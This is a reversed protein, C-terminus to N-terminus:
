QKEYAGFDPIERIRPNGDLDVVLNTTLGKDIAPSSSKLHFNYKGQEGGTEEFEPDIDNYTNETDINPSVENERWLGYTFIVSYANSGEKLAVVENNVMAGDGWCITNTFRASLAATQVVNNNSIADTIFVVPETHSFYQNSFSAITCHTFSYDGGYILRINKGCNSVLCNNVEASSNIALLGADWINDIICQELLLKKGPNNQQGETIIGQYANKIITYAFSNDHSPERLYIGPWGSPLNKYPKDLRDGSFVIRDRAATDGNVQISGDILIPANAHCYVRTGKAIQLIADKEVHLEGLIVYPLESTWIHKGSLSANKIYRANQGWASLKIKKQNANWVIIISDEVIFPLHSSNQPVRTNVFVHISDNASIEINQVVPGSEGNVNIRFISTDGGALRISALKIKQNNQNYIRISQTISVEQTFVTDFYLSDSSTGIRAEQSNTLHEKSCAGFLFLLPLVFFYFIRLM